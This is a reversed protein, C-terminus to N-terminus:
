YRDRQARPLVGALANLLTTKGCGGPGIIAVFEGDGVTLNTIHVATIQQQRRRLCAQKRILSTCM